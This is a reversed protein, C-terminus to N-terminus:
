GRGFLDDCNDLFGYMNLSLVLGVVCPYTSWSVLIFLIGVYKIRNDQM